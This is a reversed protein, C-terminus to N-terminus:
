EQAAGEEAVPEASAAEAVDANETSTEAEEEEQVAHERLAVMFNPAEGVYTPADEFSITGDEAISYVLGLAVGPYPGPTGGEAIIADVTKDDIEIYGDYVFGYARAGAANQVTHQAKAYCGEVTDADAAEEVLTDALVLATRAPIAEGAELMERSEKLLFLLASELVDPIEPAETPNTETVRDAMHIGKLRFVGAFRASTAFSASSSPNSGENGPNRTFRNELGGCEVM